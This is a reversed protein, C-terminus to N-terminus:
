TSKEKRYAYTEAEGSRSKVEMHESNKKQQTKSKASLIAASKTYNPKMKWSIQQDCIARIIASAETKSKIPHIEIHDDVYLLQHMSSTEGQYSAKMPAIIEPRTKNLDAICEEYTKSFVLPGTPDGQPVGKHLKATATANQIHTVATTTQLKLSHLQHMLEDSQINKKMAQIARSRDVTDFAKELDSLFTLHPINNYYLQERILTSTM